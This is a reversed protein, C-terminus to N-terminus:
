GRLEERIRREVEDKAWSDVAAIHPQAPVFGGSRSKHGNELLHTLQYRTNHVHVQVSGNRRELKVKWGKRYKGTRKPSTANLKSKAEKGVDELINEIKESSTRSYETLVASLQSTLDGGRGM